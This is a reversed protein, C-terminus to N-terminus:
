NLGLMPSIALFGLLVVFGLLRVEGFMALQGMVQGRAIRAVEVEFEIDCNPPISPSKGRDGYALSPPIRLVRTGGARVGFMGKEFGPLARGEGLKIVLEGAKDFQKRNAFLLATYACVIVDGEGAPEGEGVVVDKWALDTDPGPTYNDFPDLSSSSVTELEAGAKLSIVRGSSTPRGYIRGNSSFASVCACASLLLVIPLKMMTPISFTITHAVKDNKNITLIRHHHQQKTAVTALVFFSSRSM